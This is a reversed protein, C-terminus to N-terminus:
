ENIIAPLVGLWSRKERSAPLDSDFRSVGGNRYLISLNNLRSKKNEDHIAQQLRSTAKAVLDLRVNSIFGVAYTTMWWYAYDPIGIERVQAAAARAAVAMQDYVKAANEIESALDEIAYQSETKKEM